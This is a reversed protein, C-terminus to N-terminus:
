GRPVKAPDLSNGDKFVFFYAVARGEKADYGVKGLEQGAKVTDGVKVM